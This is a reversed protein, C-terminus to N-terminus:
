SFFFMNGETDKRQGKSFDMEPNYEKWVSAPFIHKNKEYWRRDVVKTIAPDNHFGELESDPLVVAREKAKGHGELPDYDAPNINETETTTPTAKTPEASYDFIPGNFGAVKNFLFYYFEYHQL